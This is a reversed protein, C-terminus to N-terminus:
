AFYPFPNIPKQTAFGKMFVTHVMTDTNFTRVTLLAAAGQVPQGLYIPHIFIADKPATAGFLLSQIAPAPIGIHLRSSSFSIEPWDSAEIFLEAPQSAVVSLKYWLETLYYWLKPAPEAATNLRILLDATGATGDGTDTASGGWRYLGPIHTPARTADVTTTIAM